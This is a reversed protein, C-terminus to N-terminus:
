NTEKERDEQRDRKKSRKANDGGHPLSAPEGEKVRPEGLLDEQGVKQNERGRGNVDKERFSEVGGKGLRDASRRPWHFSKRKEGKGRRKGLDRGLLFAECGEKGRFPSKKTDSCSNNKGERRQIIAEGSTTTKKGIYVSSTNLLAREKKDRSYPSREKELSQDREGNKKGPSGRV